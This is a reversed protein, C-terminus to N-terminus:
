QVPPSQLQSQWCYARGEGPALQLMTKEAQPPEPKALVGKIRKWVSMGM